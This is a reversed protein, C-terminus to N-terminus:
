GQATASAASARAAASTPAPRGGWGGGGAREMWPSIRDTRAVESLVLAAFPRAFGEGEGGDIREYLRDRLTRLTDPGLQGARMWHALAEYAIGDRLGPDPDGLCGALGLALSRRDSADPADFRRSIP